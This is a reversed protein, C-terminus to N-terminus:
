VKSSGRGKRPRCRQRRGMPRCPASILWARAGQRRLWSTLMLWKSTAPRRRSATTVILISRSSARRSSARGATGSAICMTGASSTGSSSHHGSESSRARRPPPTRADMQGRGLHGHEAAQGDREQQAGQEGARGVRDDVHTVADALEAWEGAQARLRRWVLDVGRGIVAWTAQGGRAQVGVRGGLAGLGGALEGHAGQAPDRGVAGAEDLQWAGHVQLVSLRM